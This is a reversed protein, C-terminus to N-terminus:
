AFDKVKTYLNFTTSIRGNAAKKSLTWEIGDFKEVFGELRLAEQHDVGDKWILTLSMSDGFSNGFQIEVPLDEKPLFKMHDFFQQVTTFKM